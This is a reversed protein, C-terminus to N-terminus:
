SKKIQAARFAIANLEQARARPKDAKTTLKDRGVGLITARDRQTIGEKQYVNVPVQEITKGQALFQNIQEDIMQHATTKISNESRM